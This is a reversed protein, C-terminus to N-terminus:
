HAVTKRVIVGFSTGNYFPELYFGGSLTDLDLTAFTGTRSAFTGLTYSDNEIPVFAAGLRVRLTGGLTGAASGILQRQATGTGNNSLEVEFVGAAGQAYGGTLHLLGGPLLREPQATGNNRLQGVVTGTGSLVGGNLDVGPSSTLTATADLATSGATQTFGTTTLAGGPGLTILGTNAFASLTLSRNLVSFTGQNKNFTGTADIGLGNVLAALPGDFTLNANNTGFATSGNLGLEGRVHWVGGTLVGSTFNTTAGFRVSGADVLVTGNNTVSTDVNTDGDTVDILGVATNTIRHTGTGFCCALDAAGGLELTADNTLDASQDFGLYGTVRITGANHIPGRIFKSTPDQVNVVASPEIEITGTGGLPAQIVGALFSVSSGARIALPGALTGGQVTVLGPGTIQGGVGITHTGGTFVVSTSGTLATYEGVASQGTGSGGSLELRGSEARVLGDNDLPVSLTGVSSPTGTKVVLGTSLNLFQRTGSGFCCDVNVQDALEFRGANTVIGSTTFALYGTVRMTGEVRVNGGLDKFDPEKVDLLGGAEVLMTAATTPGTIHGGPMVLTAGSKVTAPGAVTASADLTVVGPGTIKGGVDFTHVGGTLAVTPGGALATYEGASARGAGSGNTLELTGAEARVVGDNDLPVRLTATSSAIGTKKVTGTATNVWQRTGSGFCCDVNTADVLEVSGNNTLVNGTTIGLYGNVRLTGDNRVIGAIDKSTPTTVDLLGGTEIAATGTSTTGVIHGSKFVLDGGAVVTFPGTITAGDVLVPGPGAVTGTTDFAHTGSGFVVSTSANKSVYSGGSALGTGSGGTLTLSGVDSRVVGDNDIPTSIVAASGAAGLKVIKGTALNFIQRNGSGFCCDVTSANAVNFTAANTVAANSSFGVYGDVQLTGENRINGEFMKSNVGTVLLTGGTKITITDPAAPGRLTGGAFTLTSKQAVVIPGALAGSALTVGKGTVKSGTGVTTTGTLLKMAGTGATTYTGTGAASAPTGGTLDLEASAASITGDNDIPVAISAIAAATPGNSTVKGAGLNLFQRIGTGFCCDISVPATLNMVAANTFTADSSFGFNGLVLVTGQNKLKRELLKSGAGEVRLTAGVPVTADAATGGRLTGATWRLTSAADITFPGGWIGGDVSVTGAGSVKAGTDLNFTGTNFTLTAGAAAAYKGVALAGVPTGGTVSITGLSATITGDNDIPVKVLSTAGGGSKQITGTATNVVSPTGTGFCCDITADSQLDVVGTNTLVASGSSFQVSGTGSVTLTGALSLPGGLTKTATGSAVLTTGAGVTMAGTGGLTGGTWSLAGAFTRASAGDLTGASMTFGSTFQSTQATGLLTLQGGSITFPKRADLSQVSVIGTSFAVSAVPAASPICVHDTSGPVRDGTWNAATGWATTGAGGDWTITAVDCPAADARGAELLGFVGVLAVGLLVRAVRTINKHVRARSSFVDSTGM